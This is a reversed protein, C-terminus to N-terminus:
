ARTRLRSGASLYWVANAPLRWCIVIGLPRRPTPSCPPSKM